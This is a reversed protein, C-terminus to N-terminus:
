AAGAERAADPGTASTADRLVELYGHAVLAGDLVGRERLLRHMRPLNYHPVTMMLHHELHYNVRCPSVLLREWWSALTTRTNRLPDAPDPAMSHEAIARIRTVLTNTTLFAGVWLDPVLDGNLDGAPAADFGFQGGIQAQTNIGNAIRDSAVVQGSADLELLWVEGAENFGEDGQHAGVVLRDPAFGSTDDLWALGSGFEDGSDLSAPFGGLGDAIEVFGSPGVVCSAFPVPPVPPLSASCAPDMFLVFVAGATGRRRAGVALDVQGDGDLDGVATV